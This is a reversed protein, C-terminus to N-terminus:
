GPPDRSADLRQEIRNYGPCLAQRYARQIRASLGIDAKSTWAVPNELLGKHGVLALRLRTAQLECAEKRM